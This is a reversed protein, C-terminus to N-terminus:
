PPYPVFVATAITPRVPKGLEAFYMLIAARADATDGASPTRSAYTKLEVTATDPDTRPKLRNIRSVVIRFAGDPTTTATKSSYVFGGLTIFSDARIAKM